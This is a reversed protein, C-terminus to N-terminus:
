LKMHAGSVTINTTSPNAWFEQISICVSHVMDDSISRMCGIVSKGTFKVSQKGHDLTLSNRFTASCVARIHSTM